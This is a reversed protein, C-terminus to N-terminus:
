EVETIMMFTHIEDSSQIHIGDGDKDSFILANDLKKITMNKADEMSTKIM